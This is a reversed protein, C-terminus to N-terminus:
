SSRGFRPRKVPLQRVLNVDDENPAPLFQQGLSKTNGLDAETPADAIQKPRILLTVSMTPDEIPVLSENEDVFTVTIVNYFGDVCDFFDPFPSYTLQTGAASTAPAFDYIVNNYQPLLSSAVLNCTVGVTNYPTDQPIFPLQASTTTTPILLGTNQSPYLPVFVGEIGPDAGVLIALDRHNPSNVPGGGSYNVQGFTVLPIVGSALFGTYTGNSWTPTSPTAPTGGTMPDATVVVHLSIGSYVFKIFTTKVSSITSYLGNAILTAQLWDNLDSIQYLGDPITFTYAAFGTAPNGNQYYLSIKNNNLTSTVNYISNYVNLSSLAVECDRCTM